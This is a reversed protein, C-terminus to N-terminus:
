YVWNLLGLCQMTLLGLVQFSLKEASELSSLDNCVKAEVGIWKFMNLISGINGMGYDLVSIM